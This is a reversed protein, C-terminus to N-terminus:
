KGWDADKGFIRYFQEETWKQDNASVASHWRYILNFEASVQNGIGRPTGESDFVNSFDERPDLKWDSGTPNRNLNLITRLYDGLIINVYLGCTILRGTQFLDNDRTSLAEEYEPSGEKLGRRLSFRGRENIEALEGVVYNHFRNFAIMMACVGPPQGLLRREAFTDKKLLGDKFTRVANQEVQNDGYLPALDLYSSNKV